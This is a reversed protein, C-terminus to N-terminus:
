ICCQMIVVLVRLNGNKLLCICELCFKDAGANRGRSCMREHVVVNQGKKGLNMLVVLHDLQMVEHISGLLKGVELIVDM